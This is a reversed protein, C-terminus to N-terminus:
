WPAESERRQLAVLASSDVASAAGATFVAWRQCVSGALLLVAGIRGLAVRRGGVGVLAAGVATLVRAARAFGAPGAPRAGEDSDQAPRARYVTALDGLRQEMWAAAALEVGAGLLALRRAPAAESAPTALLAVAGASAASGGAFLLPLQAGAEQWVPIATNAFLVGTYTAMVPALAVGVAEAARQVRPLRSSEGLIAAAAVAPGYAALTWSGISMPSTPKFVRLMHHFREPRGLDAVLLPPSAAAGAAAAFRASRALRHLGARRAGIALLASGGSLGGFFAYWPVQWTWVPPKLILQTM